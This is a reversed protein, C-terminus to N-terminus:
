RRYGLVNELCWLNLYAHKINIRKKLKRMLRYFNPAALHGLKWAMGMYEWDINRQSKLFAQAKTLSVKKTAKKAVTKEM